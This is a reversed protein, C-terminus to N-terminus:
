LILYQPVLQHIFPEWIDSTSQPGVTREEFGEERLNKRWTPFSPDSHYKPEYSVSLLLAANKLHIEFLESIIRQDVAKNNSKIKMQILPRLYLLGAIFLYIKGEDCQIM